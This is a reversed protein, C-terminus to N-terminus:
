FNVTAGFFIFRGLADYVGPFTNGNEDPLSGLSTAPPDNDGLNNVGFRLRLQELVQYNINLDVYHQANLSANIPDVDEPFADVGSIFRWTAQIDVRWPTRWTVPLRHRYEPRPRNCAGGFEGACDFPEAGPLSEEVFEDLYTARYDILVSGLNDIGYDALDFDYTLQVDVGSTRLSGTNILTSDIFADEGVFLQGGAGRNILGCFFPDNELACRDLVLEQPPADIFGEVEIDFYDITLNLGPLFRPSIVAGVTWTDAEEPELDANGSFLGNFQGAPNDAINGFQAATVGTRQCQELTFFPDAGACPDFQGNARESLDFLGINSPEFLEVPNPSRTARQFQGRLRIDSLPSYTIGAAWTNQTGTTEFFDSFRAAGNFTLEEIFPRNEILPIQAEGFFEYVQIRGAVDLTPGGLGALSGEQFVLDNNLALFDERYEAGAVIQVGTDALPSQLGYRGLDGVLTGLFVLQATEGRQFGPATIFDVAEDTIAFPEFVNLPVCNPAEGTLVAECVLEGTDPDEVVNLAQELREVSLDNDSRSSFINEGFQGSVDYDWGPVLEGRFGGVIRFNTHRIDSVRGDSEVLRRGIFLPVSEDPEEGACTEDFLRGRLLPNDCNISDTTFFTGSFAIQADSRDDMFMTELYFEVQEHIEYRAFAGLTFREQPRIFHNLPAYNFTQAASGTFDVFDGGETLFLDFPNDSVGFDTFRGTPTTSSGLCEFTDGDGGFACASVDREAQLIENQELYTFYATINGRGDDFNGGVLANLNLARGGTTSDPNPEGNAELIGGTFSNDNATQFFSGQMDIELGEFDDKMIFNVVGAVADPGYVASAGGTLVEVREIVQPPIFNLDVATEQPDGFPLRRGNILVLTRSAELGRLDVTATGSAGNAFTANQAALAQPLTNLLEEIRVTGRDDVEDASIISVPSPATLDGRRIRTGTVIIQELEDVTEAEQAWVSHPAGTAFAALATAASGMLATRRLTRRRKLM